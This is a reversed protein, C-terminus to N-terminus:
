NFSSSFGNDNNKEFKLRDVILPTETVICKINKEWPKIICISYTKIELILKRKEM